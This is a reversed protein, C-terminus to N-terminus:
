GRASMRGSTPKPNRDPKERVAHTDTHRDGEVERERAREIERGREVERSREGGWGMRKWREKSANIAFCGFLPGCFSACLLERM